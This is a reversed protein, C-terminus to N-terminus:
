SPPKVPIYKVGTPTMDDPPMVGTKEKQIYRYCAVHQKGFCYKEVYEHFIRIKDKRHKEDSSKDYFVCNPHYKCLRDSM